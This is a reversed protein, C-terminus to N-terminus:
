TNHGMGAAQPPPPQAWHRQAAPLKNIESYLAEVSAGQAVAPAFGVLWLTVAVLALIKVM